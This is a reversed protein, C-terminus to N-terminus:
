TKLEPPDPHYVRTPRPKFGHDVAWLAAQTRNQAGIRRYCSRIYTKVSNISLHTRAAIEANSLGQVIYALVESERQTIGEERGPWDGGVVAIPEKGAHPRAVKRGQQVDILADVLKQAPLEKSLYASVGHAFATDVVDPDLVWSYVVVHTVRPNRALVRIQESDGQPSAFTDCLAIDVPQAVDREVDLEVVEIVDQYSRLMAMLGHVVVEYDNVLAVRIPKM